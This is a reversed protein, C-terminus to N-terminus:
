RRERHQGVRGASGGDSGVNHADENQEGEERVTFRAPEDFEAWYEGHEAQLSGEPFGVVVVIYGRGSRGYPGGESKLLVSHARADFVEREAPSDTLLVPGGRLTEGDAMVLVFATAEGWVVGGDPPEVHISLWDHPDAHMAAHRQMGGMDACMREVSSYTSPWLKYRSFMGKARVTAGGSSVTEFLYDGDAAWATTVFLYVILLVVIRKM